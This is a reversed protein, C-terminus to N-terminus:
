SGTKIKGRERAKIPASRDRGRARIKKKDRNNEKRSGSKEIHSHAGLQGLEM